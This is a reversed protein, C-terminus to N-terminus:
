LQEEHHIEGDEYTKLIALRQAEHERAQRYLMIIRVVSYLSFLALYLWSTSYISRAQIIRPDTFRDFYINYYVIVQLGLMSLFAVTMVSGPSASSRQRDICALVFVIFAAFAQFFLAQVMVATFPFIGGVDYELSGDALVVLKERMILYCYPAHLTFLIFLFIYMFLRFLSPQEYKTTM